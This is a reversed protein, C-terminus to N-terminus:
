GPETNRARYGLTVITVRAFIDLNSMADAEDVVQRDDILPGSQLKEFKPLSAIASAM